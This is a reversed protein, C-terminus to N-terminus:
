EADQSIIGGKAVFRTGDFEILQLQRIPTFSAPSNNASMGEILMPMKVDTLSTAVKMVNARSLDDGAATLVHVLLQAKAYGDVNLFDTKSAGPMYKDMFGAWEKYGADNEIGAETTDKLYRTTLVGKSKELGAPELVSGVSASAKSLFRMPNWGLDAVRSIAQAAFKPTAFIMLVNAGSNKLELIQTDVTPDTLEYGKSAVIMGDHGAVARQFNELYDRGFEDNQYLIAVKADPANELIYKAYVSSEIGYNPEFAVTWPFNEPDDWKSAGSGLFMQPVEMSNLYDHVAGNPGTGVGAFMLLVEEGEVLRRTQEVTRAPNYADDGIRFDIKRGNIGGNDNVMNFYGEAVKALQGYASAPGSMPATMGIKITDATVGPMDQALATGSLFTSAAFAGATLSVFNRRNITM